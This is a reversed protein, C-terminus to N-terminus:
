PCEMAHRTRCPLSAVDMALARVRKAEERKAESAAVREAKEQRPDVGQDILTQLRRAEDRAAQITWTKPDGITLRISAGSKLRSELVYRRSGGASAKLGLGKTQSDWM